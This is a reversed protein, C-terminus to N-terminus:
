CMVECIFRAVHDIDIRSPLSLRQSVNAKGNFKDGYPSLERVLKRWLFGHRFSYNCMANLPRPCAGPLLPARLKRQRPSLRLSDAGPQPFIIM